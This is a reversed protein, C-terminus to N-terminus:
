QNELGDPTHKDISNTSFSFLSWLSPAMQLSIFIFGILAGLGLKEKPSHICFVTAESFYIPLAEEKQISM